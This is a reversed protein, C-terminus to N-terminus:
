EHDPDGKLLKGKHFEVFNQTFTEKGELDACQEKLPCFRCDRVVLNEPIEWWQKTGLIAMAKKRLGKIYEDNREIYEIYWDSNNKDFAIFQGGTLNLCFMYYQMQAYYTPIADKLKFHVLQEIREHKLGKIELLDERGYVNVMGDIHGVIKGQIDKLTKQQNYPPLGGITLLHIVYEEVIHGMHFWPAPKTTDLTKYGEYDHYELCLKRGCYGIGSMHLVTHDRTHTAPITMSFEHEDFITIGHRIAMYIPLSEGLPVEPRVPHVYNEVNPLIIM